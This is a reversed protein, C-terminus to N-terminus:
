QDRLHNIVQLADLSSVRDDENVDPYIRRGQSDTAPNSEDVPGSGHNIINLADLASVRGDANVDYPNDPNTWEFKPSEAVVSLEGTRRSDSGIETRVEYTITCEEFDSPTVVKIGLGSIAGTEVRPDSSQAQNGHFQLGWGRAQEDNELVDVYTVTGPKVIATDASLDPFNRPDNWPDPGSKRRPRMYHFDAPTFTFPGVGGRGLMGVQAHHGPYWSHAEEHLALKYVEARSSQFRASMYIRGRLDNYGNVYGVRPVYVLDRWYIHWHTNTQIYDNIQDLSQQIAWRVDAHPIGRNTQIHLTARATM